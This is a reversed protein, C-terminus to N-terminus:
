EVGKIWVKEYTIKGWEGIWTMSREVIRGVDLLFYYANRSCLVLLFFIDLSVMWTFLNKLGGEM